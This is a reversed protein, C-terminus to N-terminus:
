KKGTMKKMDPMKVQTSGIPSKTGQPFDNLSKGKEAQKVTKVPLDSDKLQQLTIKINEDGYLTKVKPDSKEYPQLLIPKGDSDQKIYQRRIDQEQGETNVIVWSPPIHTSAFIVQRIQDPTAPYHTAVEILSVEVPGLGEFGIPNERIPLRKPKTFDALSYQSLGREIAACEEESIERAVKVKFKYTKKGETLYQTLTKM